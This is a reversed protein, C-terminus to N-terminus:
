ISSNFTAAKVPATVGQPDASRTTAKRHATASLPAHQKREPRSPAAGNTKVQLIM